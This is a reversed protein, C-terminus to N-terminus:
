RRGVLHDLCRWGLFRAPRLRKTQTAQCNGVPFLFESILLKGLRRKSTIAESRFHRPDLESREVELLYLRRKGDKAIPKKRALTRVSEGEPVPNESSKFGGRIDNRAVDYRAFGVDMKMRNTGLMQYEIPDVQVLLYARDPKIEISKDKAFATVSLCGMLALLMFRFIKKM